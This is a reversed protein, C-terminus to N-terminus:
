EYCVIAKSLLSDFADTGNVTTIRVGALPASLTNWGTMVGSRTTDSSGFTGSLVWTDGGDDLKALTLMAVRVNAASSNDPMDFGASFQVSSFGVSASLGVASGAYGTTVVPSGTTDLIRVRLNSTGNTSVNTLLITIRKAWSPVSFDKETGSSLIQAATYAIMGGRLGAPTIARTTDTGTQVEATTALEVLGEATDTASSLASSTWTTGNSRLVNGATGPAVEQVASTGNGLLVNNAALTAAGTGGSAVPLTASWQPVTGSSTLVANAAGVTLKALTTTTDAYLLDGVAYSSQGTGGSPAALATGLTLAGLHDFAYLVEAGDSYLPVRKGQPVEVGGGANEFDLTYAGTTNNFVFYLKSNVPVTVVRNAPMTGDVEIFMNRADNAGSAGSDITMTVDGATVDVTEVGSVAVDVLDTFGGNVATGWGADGLAPKNFKLNTTFTSAM